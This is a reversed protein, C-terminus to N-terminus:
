TMGEFRTKDDELLDAVKDSVNYEERIDELTIGGQLYDLADELVDPSASEEDNYMGYESTYLAVYVNGVTSVINATNRIGLEDLKNAISVSLRTNGLRNRGLRRPVGSPDGVQVPMYQVDSISINKISVREARRGRRPIFYPEFLGPFFRRITLEEEDDSQADQILQNFKRNTRTRAEVITVTYQIIDEATTQVGRRYNDWIRTVVYQRPKTDLSIGDATASTVYWNSANIHNLTYVYFKLLVSRTQGTVSRLSQFHDNRAMNSIYDMIEENPNEPKKTMEEAKTDHTTRPLKGVKAKSLILQQVGQNDFGLNFVVDNIDTYVIENRLTPPGGFYSTKRRVPEVTPRNGRRSPYAETAMTRRNPIFRAGISEAFEKIEAMEEDESLEEDDFREADISEKLADLAREIIPYVKQMLEVPSLNERDVNVAIFERIPVSIGRKIDNFDFGDRQQLLNLLTQGDKLSLDQGQIMFGLHILFQRYMRESLPINREKFLNDVLQIFLRPQKPARYGRRKLIDSWM